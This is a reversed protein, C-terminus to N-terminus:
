ACSQLSINSRPFILGAGVVTSLYQVLDSFRSIQIFSQHLISYTQKLKKSNWKHMRKVSKRYTKLWFVPLAKLVPLCMNRLKQNNNWFKHKRIEDQEVTEQQNLGFIQKANRMNQTLPIINFENHNRGKSLWLKHSLINCAMLLGWAFRCVLNTYFIWIHTLKKIKGTIEKTFAM